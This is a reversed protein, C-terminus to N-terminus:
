ELELKFEYYDNEEELAYITYLGEDSNLCRLEKDDKDFFYASCMVNEEGTFVEISISAGNEFTARITKIVSNSKLGLEKISGNKLYDDIKKFEEKKIVANAEFYQKNDM